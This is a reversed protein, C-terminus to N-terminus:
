PSDATEFEPDAVHASGLGRFTVGITVQVADEDIRAVIERQTWDRTRIRQDFTYERVGAAGARDVRLFLDAGSLTPAQLRLWARYRVERGRLSAADFSQMVYGYDGRGNGGEHRIVACRSGPTRCDDAATASYGNGQAVAWGAPAVGPDSEQFDLNVPGQQALLPVALLFVLGVLRM